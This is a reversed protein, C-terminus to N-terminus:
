LKSKMHKAMSRHHIFAITTDKGYEKAVDLVTQGKKNRLSLETGADVLLEVCKYHVVSDKGGFRAADHLPTDGNSDQQNVNLGCEKTLFDVTGDHGWFAAKHLASRGSATELAHVDAKPAYAKVVDLSGHMSAERFAKSAEDRASPKKKSEVSAGNSILRSFADAFDNFFLQEDDAYMRAFKKFEPDTKLCMDTPLMMLEETDKDTYQLPGDWKKPIWEMNMLVKFYTNDFKLPNRTWPGDFGSRTRHCRGLTHAGSLCVIERDNFGQRYFVDRLHQAGQAADPLRGNAPCTTGNLADKRGMEHDIKPGGLFEVAAAGALTWLDAFSVEPHRAKIPLLMDRVMSLGANADDTSEPEFRM